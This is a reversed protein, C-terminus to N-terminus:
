AFPTEAENMNDASPHSIGEVEFAIERARNRLQVRSEIVRRTEIAIRKRLETDKPIPLIVEFFRKGLTDIIDRTFQKARMQRRVIPMNLLALLLYPDLKTKDRVRLKYIGGCYLIRTDHETIMCSSGVLYTGDRVVFIDEAKVDQKSREYIEASVNQKPDGKLEWNSIDSTRIFPIPGTGYAMKGIEIGTDWAVVKSKVLDAIAELQHTTSLTKLSEDIDPAYYKPIFIGQRVHSMPCLFGPNGALENRWSWDEPISDEFSKLHGEAWLPIRRIQERLEARKHVNADVEQTLRTCLSRDKPVPIILELYRNGITDIIDATFQKARIQTKVIPANLCALLLPPSIPSDKKIRLKLIHSQYLCPLDHETVLCTQGILYTGDRVFFMDGVRVDQHNSYEAYIDASVGQKPDTKLEWNAIDSTRIFPIEGTGYAMKGIEHGTDVSLHGARRLDELTITEHTHSLKSLRAPIEPNYYRPVFVAGQISSMRFAFGLHDQVSVM